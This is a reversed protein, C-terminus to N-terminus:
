ILLFLSYIVICLLNSYSFDPVCILILIYIVRLRVLYFTGFNLTDSEIIRIM